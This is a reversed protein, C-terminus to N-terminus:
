RSARRGGRGVEHTLKAADRSPMGFARALKVLQSAYPTLRGSEIAGVTAGNLGARRALEARSWGREERKLQLTLM